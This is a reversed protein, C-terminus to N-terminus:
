RFWSWSQPANSNRAAFAAALTRKKRTSEQAAFAIQSVGATLSAKACATATLLDMSTMAMIDSSLTPIQLGVSLKRLASSGRGFLRSIVVIRALARSERSMSENRESESLARGLRERKQRDLTTGRKVRETAVIIGQAYIDAVASKVSARQAAAEASSGPFLGSTIRTLKNGPPAMRRAIISIAGAPTWREITIGGCGLADAKRSEDIALLHCCDELNTELNNLTHLFLIVTIRVRVIVKIRVRVKIRVKVWVRVKIRVKVWVRIKIRVKVRVRVKIM